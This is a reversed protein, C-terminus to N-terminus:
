IYKKLTLLFLLERLADFSKHKDFFAVYPTGGCGKGTRMNVPCPFCTSKYLYCFACTSRGGDYIRGLLLSYRFVFWWKKLVYKYAQKRTMNEPWDGETVVFNYEDLKFKM